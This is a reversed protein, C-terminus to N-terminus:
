KAGCGSAVVTSALLALGGPLFVQALVLQGAPVM